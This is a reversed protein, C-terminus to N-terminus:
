IQTKFLASTIIMIKKQQMRMRKTNESPDSKASESWFSSVWLFSFKFIYTYYIITGNTNNCVPQIIYTAPILSINYVDQDRTPKSDKCFLSWDTSGNALLENFFSVTYTNNPRGERFDRWPCCSFFCINNVTTSTHLKIPPCFNSNPLRTIRRQSTFPWETRLPTGKECVWGRSQIWRRIPCLSTFKKLNPHEGGRRRVPLLTSAIHSLKGAENVSFGRCTGITLPPMTQRLSFIWKGQSRGRCDATAPHHSVGWPVTSKAHYRCAMLVLLADKRNQVQTLCVIVTSDFDKNFLEYLIIKHPCKFVAAKSSPPIQEIQNSTVKLKYITCHM